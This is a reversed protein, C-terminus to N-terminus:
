YELRQIFANSVLSSMDDWVLEELISRDLLPQAHQQGLVGRGSHSSKIRPDGFYDHYESTSEKTITGELVMYTSKDRLNILKVQYSSSVIRQTKYSRYEGYVEEWLYKEEVKPEPPPLKNEKAYRIQDNSPPTTVKKTIPRGKADLKQVWEHYATRETQFWPHTISKAPTIFVDIMLTPYEEESRVFEIMEPNQRITKQKIRSYMATSLNNQFPLSYIRWKLTELMQNCREKMDDSNLLVELQRCLRFDSTIIKGRGVRQDLEVQLITQAKNVLEARESEITTFDEHKQHLAELYHALEESLLLSKLALLPENSERYQNTEQRLQWDAIQHALLLSNRIKEDKPNKALHAGYYEIAMQMQGSAQYKNGQQYLGVCGVLWFCFSLFSM